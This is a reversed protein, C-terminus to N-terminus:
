LLCEKLFLFFHISGGSLLTDYYVEVEEYDRYHSGPEDVTM